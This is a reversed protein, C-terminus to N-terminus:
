LVLVHGVCFNVMKELIENIKNEVKKVHFHLAEQETWHRSPFNESAYKEDVEREEMSVLLAKFAARTCPRLPNSSMAKFLREFHDDWKVAGLISLHYESCASLVAEEVPSVEYRPRPNGGIWDTKLTVKGNLIFEAMLEVPYEGRDRLNGTRASRFNSLLQAVKTLGITNRTALGQDEMYKIIITAISSLSNRIGTGMAIIRENQYRDNSEFFCHGIRHAVMWPTLGVRDTGENTLLLITIKGDTELPHNVIAEAWRKDHIGVYDRAFETNIYDVVTKTSFKVKGDERGNVIHIEWDWPSNRFLRIVREKWEPNRFKRLDDDRFSGPNNMDGVFDMDQIPAEILERYRM